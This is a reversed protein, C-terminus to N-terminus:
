APKGSPSEKFFRVLKNETNETGVVTYGAQIFEQRIM